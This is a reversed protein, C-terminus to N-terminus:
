APCLDGEFWKFKLRSVARVQFYFFAVAKFLKLQSPDSETATPKPFPLTTCCYKSEFM